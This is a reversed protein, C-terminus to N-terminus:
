RISRWDLHLPNLKIFKNILPMHGLHIIIHPEDQGTKNKIHHKDCGCIRMCLLRLITNPLRQIFDLSIKLLDSRYAAARVKDQRLQLLKRNLTWVSQVATVSDKHSAFVTAIKCLFYALLRNSYKKIGLSMNWEASCMKNRLPSKGGFSFQESDIEM